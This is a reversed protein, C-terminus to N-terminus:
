WVQAFLAANTLLLCLSFCALSVLLPLELSQYHVVEGVLFIAPWFVVCIKYSIKDFLRIVAVLHSPEVRCFFM